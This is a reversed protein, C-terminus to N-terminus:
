AERSLSMEPAQRFGLSEYLPKGEESASLTVRDIGEAECWELIPQMIRRALGRRRYEPETYINMVHAWRGVRHCGPVPFQERILVGGGAAINPGDVVLWGVYQNAALVSALWSESAARLEEFADATSVLGMDRFMAARHLAIIGADRPEAKRVTFSEEQRTM